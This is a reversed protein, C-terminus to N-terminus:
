IHILSLKNILEGFIEIVEEKNKRQIPIGGFGIVSVMLDTSGLRRKEM